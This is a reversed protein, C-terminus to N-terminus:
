RKIGGTDLMLNGEPSINVKLEPLDKGAPGALLQGDGTFESGHCPCTFTDGTEELACGLHTCILSFARYRSGSLYIVAPIDLRLMRGERPFDGEPGLNIVRPPTSGPQHSFFRALGALGLLGALGALLRSCSRIFNRRTLNPKVAM